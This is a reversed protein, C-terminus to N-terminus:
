PALVTNTRKGANLNRWTQFKDTIVEAGGGVRVVIVADDKYTANSITFRETDTTWAVLATPTFNRTLLLPAGADSDSLDAVASWANNAAAFTVTTGPAYRGAAPPIKGGAFYNWDVELTQNTVLHIFYDTSNAFTLSATTNSSSAPYFAGDGSSYLVAGVDTVEAFISTYIGRGNSLTRTRNASTLARTVAPVLIAALLAIIAIVVLMEILTFGSTKKITSKM